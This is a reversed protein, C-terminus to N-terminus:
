ECMDPEVALGLGVDMSRDVDALQEVSTVVAFDPWNFKSYMYLLTHFYSM